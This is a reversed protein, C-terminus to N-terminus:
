NGMRSLCTIFCNCNACFFPDFSDLKFRNGFGLNGNCFIIHPPRGFNGNCFICSFNLSSAIELAWVIAAAEACSPDFSDIQKLWAQLISGTHDRAVVAIKAFSGSFAGDV